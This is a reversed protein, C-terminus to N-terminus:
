PSVTYFIIGMWNRLVLEESYFSTDIVTAPVTIEVLPFFWIYSTWIFYNSTSDLYMDDLTSKVLKQLQHFTYAICPGEPQWCHSVQKNCSPNYLPKHIINNISEINEDNPATEFDASM